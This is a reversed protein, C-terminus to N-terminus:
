NILSSECNRICLLSTDNSKSIGLLYTREGDYCILRHSIFDLKMLKILIDLMRM